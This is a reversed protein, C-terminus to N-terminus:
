QLILFYIEVGYLVFYEVFKLFEEFACKIAKNWKVNM